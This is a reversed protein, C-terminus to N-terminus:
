IGSHLAFTFSGPQRDFAGHFESGLPGAQNLQPRGCARFIFRPGLSPVVPTRVCILFQDHLAAKFHAFYPVVRGPAEIPAPFWQFRTRRLRVTTRLHFTGSRGRRSYVYVRPGRYGPAVNPTAFQVYIGAEDDPYKLPRLIGTGLYADPLM